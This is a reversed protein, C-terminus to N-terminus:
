APVREVMGEYELEWLGLVITDFNEQEDKSIALKGDIIRGVEEWRKREEDTPKLKILRMLREIQEPEFKGEVLAARIEKEAKNERM